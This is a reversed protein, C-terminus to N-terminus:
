GIHRLRGDAGLMSVVDLVHLDRNARLVLNIRERNCRAFAHKEALEVGRRAHPSQRHGSM